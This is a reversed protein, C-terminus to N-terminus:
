LTPTTRGSGLGKEWDEAMMMMMATTQKESATFRGKWKGRQGKYTGCCIPCIICWWLQMKPRKKAPWHFVGAPWLHGVPQPKCVGVRSPQSVKWFFTAQLKHPQLPLLFDGFDSGTSTTYVKSAMWFTNWVSTLFVLHHSLTAITVNLPLLLM